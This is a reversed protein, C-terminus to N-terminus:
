GLRRLSLPEGAVSFGLEFSAYVGEHTFFARLHHAPLSVRRGDRSPLLICNAHGQYVVRLYEAFLAIDPELSPM